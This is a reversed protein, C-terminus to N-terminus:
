IEVYFCIYCLNFDKWIIFIYKLYVSIYLELVHYQSIPLLHRSRINKYTGLTKMYIKQRSIKFIDTTLKQTLINHFLYCKLFHLMTWPRDFCILAENGRGGVGVGLSQRVGTQFKQDKPSIGHVQSM